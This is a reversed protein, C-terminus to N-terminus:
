AKKKTVVISSANAWKGGGKEGIFYLFYFIKKINTKTKSKIM